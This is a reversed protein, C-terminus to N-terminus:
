YGSWQRTTILIIGSDSDGLDAPIGGDLVTVYFIANLPVQHSGRIKVGDIFYLPEHKSGRLSLKGDDTEIGGGLLAPMNFDRRPYVGRVEKLPPVRCATSRACLASLQQTPTVILSTPYEEMCILSSSLIIQGHVGVFTFLCYSILICLSKM